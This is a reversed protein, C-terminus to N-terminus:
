QEFPFCLATITIGFLLISAMIQVCIDFSFGNTKSIICSFIFNNATLIYNSTPSCISFLKVFMSSINCNAVPAFMQIAISLIERDLDQGSLIFFIVLPLIKLMVQCYSVEMYYFIFTFHGSEVVAFFM